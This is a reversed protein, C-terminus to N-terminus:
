NTIMDFPMMMIVNEKQILEIKHLANYLARARQPELKRLLEFFIQSSSDGSPTWPVNGFINKMGSLTIDSSKEGQGSLEELLMTIFDKPEPIVRIEYDKMSVQAAAYEIAQQLGGIEDILGLEKAQKGTYVRGGAIEEIPKTLKGKRGEVVHGKFVDYVKQMYGTLFERQSPSLSDFSNLLDANRGRKYDVWNVGIKDWLDTTAIKGGVVGISATITVEDAFIKDANCAIYYGGSGAVDGMSVIVPKKGKVLKTANLIVESAEASGGPSNIRMVVAKISDDDAATEFAKQIEGSFAGGTLGLLSSTEYGSTITGEVYILAIADKKVQPSPPNLMEGLLTFLSFPSSLNIPAKQEIGYQNDVVVPGSISNKVFELFEQRTEVADILGKKFAEDALYPGNDILEKVDENSKSRSQAIMGVLSDYISDLLWNHNENAAKSPQTQTLTEAASKFDGMQIYDAKVGIKDLLDKVFVSESYLGTLWLTSQPSMGLHDGACLLAYVSNEMEESHIYVKKGSVKLQNISKRLEEIQGLELSLSDFTFIVAKVNDDKGAKEMLRVLSRLSTVQGSTLELSDIVGSETIQGSLHFHVIVSPKVIVPLQNPAPEPTESAIMYNTFLISIISLIGIVFLSRSKIFKM